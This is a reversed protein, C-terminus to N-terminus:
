GARHPNNTCRSVSTLRARKHLAKSQWLPQNQRDIWMKATKAEEANRNKHKLTAKGAGNFRLGGCVNRCNKVAGAVAVGHNREISYPTEMWPIVRVAFQSPCLRVEIIRGPRQQAGVCAPSFLPIPAVGTECPVPENHPIQAFLL